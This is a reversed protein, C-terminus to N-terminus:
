NPFVSVIASRGTEGLKIRMVFTRGGPITATWAIAEARRIDDLLGAPEGLRTEGQWPQGPRAQVAEGLDLIMIGDETSVPEGLAVISEALAISFTASAELLAGPGAPALRLTGTYGEAPVNFALNVAANGPEVTWTAEGLAIQWGVFADNAATEVWVLHVWERGTSPTATGADLANNLTGGAYATLFTEAFPSTDILGNITRLAAAIGADDRMAFSTGLATVAPALATDGANAVAATVGAFATDSPQGTALANFLDEVAAQFAAINQNSLALGSGGTTTGRQNTIALAGVVILAVILALDVLSLRRLFQM